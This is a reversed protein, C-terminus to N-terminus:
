LAAAAPERCALDFESRMDRYSRFLVSEDIDCFFMRVGAQYWGAADSPRAITMALAPPDEARAVAAAIRAVADVVRPDGLQGPCGLAVALDGPGPLVLDLNTSALVEDLRDIVEPDEVLGVLCVDGAAAREYDPLTVRGYETARVTRCAGREGSPAFRTRVRVDVTDSRLGFHPVVIGRAGLDLLLGVAPLDSPGLRVFPTVGRADAARIMEEINVMSRATHEADIVVFDLGAAAAIEIAAPDRLYIFSGFVPRGGPALAQRIPSGTM